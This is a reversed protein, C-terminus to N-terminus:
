GSAGLLPVGKAGKQEGDAELRDKLGGVAAKSGRTCHEREKIVGCQQPGRLGNELGKVCELLLCCCNPETHLLPLADEITSGKVDLQWRGQSIDALLRLPDHQEAARQTRWRETLTPALVPQGLGSGAECLQGVQAIRLGGQVDDTLADDAAWDVVHAQELGGRSPERGQGLKVGTDPGCHM